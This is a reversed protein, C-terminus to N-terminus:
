NIACRCKSRFFTTCRLSGLPIVSARRADSGRTSANAGSRERAGHAAGGSQSAGRGPEHGRPVLLIETRDFPNAFRVPPRAPEPTVPPAVGPSEDPIMMAVEPVPLGSNAPRYLTTGHARRARYRRRCRIGHSYCRDDGSMLGGPDEEGRLEALRPPPRTGSQDYIPGETEVTALILSLSPRGNRGDNRDPEATRTTPCGARRGGRELRAAIEAVHRGQFRAGELENASPQRSGDPGALTTAGYPTGGTM